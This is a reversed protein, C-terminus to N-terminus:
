SHVIKLDGCLNKWTRKPLKKKITTSTFEKRIMLESPTGFVEFNTNNLSIIKPKIAMGAPASHNEYM